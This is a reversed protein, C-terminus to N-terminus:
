GHPRGSAGPDVVAHPQDDGHGRRPVGAAGCGCRSRHGTAWWPVPSPTTAPTSRRSPTIPDSSSRTARLHPPRPRRRHPEVLAAHQRRLPSTATRRARRPSAARPTPRRRACLAGPTGDLHYIRGDVRRARVAGDPPRVHRRLALDDSACRTSCARSYPFENGFDHKEAGFGMLRHQGRRRQPLPRGRPGALARSTGDVLDADARTSRQPRRPALGWRAPERRHHVLTLAPQGRQGLRRLGAHWQPGPSASTGVPPASPDRDIIIRGMIWGVGGGCGPGGGPQRGRDGADLVRHHLRSRRCRGCQQSRGPHPHPGQGAHELRQRRLARREPQRCDCRSGPARVGARCRWPASTAMAVVARVGRLRRGEEASPRM